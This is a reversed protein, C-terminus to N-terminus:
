GPAQMGNFSWLPRGGLNYNASMQGGFSVIQLVAIAGEDHIATALREMREAFLLPWSPDPEVFLPQLIIMGLGGAARRRQYEIFQQGSDLPNWPQFAGHATTILRNRLTYSRVRIPSLLLPVQEEGLDTASISM